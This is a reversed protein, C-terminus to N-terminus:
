RVAACDQLAVRAGIRQLSNAFRLKEGAAGSVHKGRLARTEM